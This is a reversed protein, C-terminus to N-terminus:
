INNIWNKLEQKEKVTLKIKNGKPMRKWVFVQRNIKPAFGNMNDITFVKKPNEIRHCVNCKQVLVHLARQQKENNEMLTKPSLVSSVIVVIAILVKM